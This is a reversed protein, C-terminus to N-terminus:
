ATCLSAAPQCSDTSKIITALGVSLRQQENVTTLQDCHAAAALALKRLSFYGTDLLQLAAPVFLGPRDTLLPEDM